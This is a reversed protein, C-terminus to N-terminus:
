APLKALRDAETSDKDAKDKMGLADWCMARKAFVAAKTPDPIIQPEMNASNNDPGIVMAFSTLERGADM